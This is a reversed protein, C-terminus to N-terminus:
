ILYLLPFLFIWILDVLHWYLGGLELPTNYQHSFEGKYAFRCMFLLVILGILVHLSHLGTMLFYLTYFMPAGKLNVEHFHYFKGPLAGVHYEHAYEFGHIVLFALGGAITLLLWPIIKKHKGLEGWHVAVAMTFSSTILILTNLLGLPKDLHSSCAKYAAPFLHRYYAYAAFLGGFLLIETALFVWMGLRAASRQVEMDQFHHQFRPHQTGAHSDASM